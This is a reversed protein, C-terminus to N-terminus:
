FYMLFCRPTLDYYSRLSRPCIGAASNICFNWKMAREPQTKDVTLKLCPTNDCLLQLSVRLPAQTLCHQLDKLGEQCDRAIRSNGDLGWPWSWIKCHKKGSRHEGLVKTHFYSLNSSVPLKESASTEVWTTRLRCKQQKVQLRSGITHGGETMLKYWLVCCRFAEEEGGPNMLTHGHDGSRICPHLLSTHSLTPHTVAGGPVLKPWEPLAQPAVKNQLRQTSNCKLFYFYFFFRFTM